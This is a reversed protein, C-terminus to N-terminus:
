AYWKKKRSSENFGSEANMKSRHKNILKEAKDIKDVRKSPIKKERLRREEIKKMKKTKRPKLSNRTIKGKPKFSPVSQVGKKAVLGAYKPAVDETEANISDPKAQDKKGKTKKKKKSEITENDGEDQQTDQDAEEESDVAEKKLYKAANPNKEKSKLARKEKAKLALRNELSFEVIPRNNPNLIEPNNNVARLATLAHEHETFNVFGFGKSEGKGNLDIHKM